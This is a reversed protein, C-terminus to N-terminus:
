NNKVKRHEAFIVAVDALDTESGETLAGSLINLVVVVQWYDKAEEALADINKILQEKTM